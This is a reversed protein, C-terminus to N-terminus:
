YITRVYPFGCSLVSIFSIDNIVQILSMIDKMIEPRRSDINCKEILYIPVTLM